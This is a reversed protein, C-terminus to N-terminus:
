PLYNSSLPPQLVEVAWLLAGKHSCLVLLSVTMPWSEKRNQDKKGELPSAGTERPWDPRSNLCHPTATLASLPAGTRARGQGHPEEGAQPRMHGM